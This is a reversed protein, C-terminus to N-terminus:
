NGFVSINFYRKPDKKIDEILNELEKSTKELNLYLEDDHILMGLSGEGTNVKSLAIDLEELTKNANNITQKLDSAALTDSVAEFNTIIKTISENNKALNSTISEANSLITAIRIAQSYFTTDLTYTTREFNELTLKINEMSESINDRTEKNFVYQIVAMVSDIQALLNEAQKKFPLMQQSVEDQISAQIHTSLTDGNEINKASDGLLIEIERTGLLDSSYLRAISNKPIKVTTGIISEVVVRGSGDPHFDISNIQGVKVGSISVPNSEILGTVQDYVAYFKVQKTFIDTGKLYNLGWVFLLITGVVVIGIRVERRIKM